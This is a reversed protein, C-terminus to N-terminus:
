FRRLQPFYKRDDVLPVTPLRPVAQVPAVAPKAPVSSRPAQSNSSTSFSSLPRSPDGSPSGVAAPAAYPGPQARPSPASLDELYPNRSEALIPKPGMGLSPVQGDAPETPLPSGALLAAAASLKQESNRRAEPRMLELDRPSLWQTLYQALPDSAQTSKRSGAPERELTRDVATRRTDRELETQKVADALWTPSPTTNGAPKKKPAADAESLTLAPLAAEGLGSGNGLFAETREATTLTRLDKKAAELSASGNVASAPAEGHASVGFLVLWIAISRVNM